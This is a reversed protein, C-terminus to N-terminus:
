DGKGEAYENKPILKGNALGGEFIIQLANDTGALIGYLHEGAKKVLKQTSERDAERLVDEINLHGLGRSALTYKDRNSRVKRLFDVYKTLQNALSIPEGNEIKDLAQEIFHLAIADARDVAEADQPEPSFQSDREYLARLHAETETKSLLALDPQFDIGYSFRNAGDDEDGNGGNGNSGAGAIVTGREGRAVIVPEGTEALLTSADWEFERFTRAVERMVVHLKPNGPLTYLKHSLWLERLNSFMLTPNAEWGGMSLSVFGVHFVSDFTTPHIVCPDEAAYPMTKAYDRLALTGSACGGRSYKINQLGQFYPGYDFGSRKSLNEYLQASQM